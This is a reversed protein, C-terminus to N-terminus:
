VIRTRARFRGTVAQWESLVAERIMREDKSPPVPRPSARELLAEVMDNKTTSM